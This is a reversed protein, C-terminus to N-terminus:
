PKKGNNIILTKKLLFINYFKSFTYGNLKDIESLERDYSSIKISGDKIEGYGKKQLNKICNDIFRDIIEKPPSNKKNFQKTANKDFENQRAIQKNKEISEKSWCESHNKNYPFFDCKDAFAISEFFFQTVIFLYATIVKIKM